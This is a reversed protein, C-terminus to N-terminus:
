ILKKLVYRTKQIKIERYKNDSEKNLVISCRHVWEACDENVLCTQPFNLIQSIQRKVEDCEPNIIRLSSKDFFEIADNDATNAM